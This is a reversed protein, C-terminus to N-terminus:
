NKRKKVIRDTGNTEGKKIKFKITTLLTQLGVKMM